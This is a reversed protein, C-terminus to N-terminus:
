NLQGIQIIFTVSERNRSRVSDQACLGDPHKQTKIKMIRSDM